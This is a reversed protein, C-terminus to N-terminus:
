EELERREKRVFARYGEPSQSLDGWGRASPNLEFKNKLLRIYTRLYEKEVLKEELPYPKSPLIKLITDSFIPFSRKCRVCELNRTKIKLQGYCDPCRLLNYYQKLM